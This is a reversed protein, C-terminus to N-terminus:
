LTEAPGNFMLDILAFGVTEDAQEIIQKAAPSEDILEGAMGVFQSGQGPFVLALRGVFRDAM